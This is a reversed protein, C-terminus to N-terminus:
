AAAPNHIFFYLHHHHRLEKLRLTILFYNNKFAECTNSEGFGKEGGIFLYVLM